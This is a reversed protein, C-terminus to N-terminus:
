LYFISSWSRLAHAPKEIQMAGLGHCLRDAREGQHTHKAHRKATQLKATDSKACRAYKEGSNENAMETIRDILVRQMEHLLETKEKEDEGNTQLKTGPKKSRDPM